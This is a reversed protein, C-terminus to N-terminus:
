GGGAEANLVKTYLKGIFILAVGLGLFSLIRLVGELAAADMVFAKLTMATLLILGALRLAKDPLRVGGLLLAIALLVGAASYSYSEADSVDPGTLIPGHYVQRVMLAVGFVLSALGLVLWFGSRAVHDAGRRAAYLWLASLLYAPLILNLVPWAGVNQDVWLPNDVLMDFWLLRGAALGTLVIGAWWLQRENLGLRPLRRRCVLFGAAFLTQTLITREAFGRAVFEETTDLGYLRKFLVYLGAAALGGAMALLATRWRRWHDEPVTRWVLLLLPVPLLLVEAARLATPLYSVLTPAGIIAGALADWLRPVLAVAEAAALACTLSALLTLGRDGARRGAAAAVFALALWGAPVLPEAALDWVALGGLLLAAAGAAFLPPDLEARERRRAALRGLLAPGAALAAFLAGWLPRDLLDPREARLIAAPFLFAACAIGTWLFAEPSRRWAGWFGGAGFILLIGAAVATVNPDTRVAAKVALLLLALALALVPIPRYESRRPALLFSAVALAAFLIWAATDLETVAVLLGLQVLGIAAPRIFEVQWGGGTRVLSAAVSVLLIFAGVAANDAPKAFILVATWAFSLLVGSAVLWSWGRRSAVAFLAIDLLALYALLPVAGANADGVLLPTAFGGALGMAATPAGHRLSLILAVATMMSLLASTTGRGILHHVIFSGYATAYLVLIAAGVLAQAVRIDPVAGPRSRAYEGLALLLLGFLAALGMQVPPTILGIQISFRVLFLGAVALAIGGAWILLRGGVFREFLGGLSEILAPSPATPPPSPPPEGIALAPSRTQAAAPASHVVRAPRPRADFLPDRAAAAPGARDPAAEGRELQRELEATRRALRLHAITLWALGLLLLIEMAAM